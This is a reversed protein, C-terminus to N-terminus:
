EEELGKARLIAEFGLLELTLRGKMLEAMLTQEKREIARCKELVERARDAPVVAVGDDDGLVIDGPAVPVQGCVIPHNILGLTEKVTGKMCLGPCFVGFERERIAPGDRVCGDMVLGGIQRAQAAVTLIEGWYGCAAHGVTAVVVDGPRAIAVAKHLMLNDGPHCRVTLAPGCVRMGPYIPKIHRSMAGAKAMAEHAIAPAVKKFAKLTEADPRLYDKRVHVM